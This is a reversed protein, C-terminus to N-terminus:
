ISSLVHPCNSRKCEWYYNDDNMCLYNLESSKSTSKLRKNCRQQFQDFDAPPMLKSGVINPITKKIDLADKPKLNHTNLSQVITEIKTSLDQVAFLLQEILRYSTEELYFGQSM